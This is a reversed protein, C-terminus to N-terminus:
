RGLDEPIAHRRILSSIGFAVVKLRDGDTPTAFTAYVRQGATLVCPWYITHSTQAAFSGPTSDIPIKKKGDMIGIEIYTDIKTDLDMAMVSHLACVCDPPVAPTEVTTVEAAAAVENELVIVSSKEM